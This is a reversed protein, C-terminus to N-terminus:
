QDAPGTAAPGSKSTRGVVLASRSALDAWTARDERRLSWLYGLGLTLIAAIAGLLRMLTRGIGFPEGRADLRIRWARMGLTQGGRRWSLWFYLFGLLLLFIQFPASGSEVAGGTVAVALAGGAMWIAILAMADYLMAAFRRPLACPRFETKTRCVTM